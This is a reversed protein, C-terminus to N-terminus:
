EIQGIFIIYKMMIIIIRWSNSFQYNLHTLHFFGSSLFSLNSFTVDLQSACHKEGGTEYFPHCQLSEVTSEQMHIAADTGNSTWKIAKGIWKADKMSSLLKM